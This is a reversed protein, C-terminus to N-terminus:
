VTSPLDKVVEEEFDDEKKECNESCFEQENFFDDIVFTTSDELEAVERTKDYRNGSSSLCYDPAFAAASNRAKLRLLLLNAIRIHLSPTM